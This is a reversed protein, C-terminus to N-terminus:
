LLDRILEAIPRHLILSARQRLSSEGGVSLLIRGGQCPQASSLRQQVVSHMHASGEQCDSVISLELNHKNSRADFNHSGLMWTAGDVILLKKHLTGKGQFEFLEVGERILRRKQNQYAAYVLVQDTVNLSNTMITVQVGRRTARSIAARTQQDFAPYPTVMLISGVAGDLLQIFSRQFNRSSKDALCDRLLCIQLGHMADAGWDQASDFNVGSRCAVRIISQDLLSQYGSPTSAHRWAAEWSSSDAIQMGSAKSKGLRLQESKLVDPLNWLWEFYDQVQPVIEGTLLADCDLFRREKDFGFHRDDLNRSGVIAHLSDAVLLKSHMRCNLWRLKGTSPPHYFRLDIGNFRLYQVYSAPLKTCLGDVVLRVSVGRQAAQRLLEMLATPVEGTDVAFYALDISNQAQQILDVRAQLADCDENLFRLSSATAAPLHTKFQVILLVCLTVGLRATCFRTIRAARLDRAFPSVCSSLNM